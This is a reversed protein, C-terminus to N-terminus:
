KLCDMISTRCVPADGMAAQKKWAEYAYEFTEPYVSGRKLPRTVSARLAAETVAMHPALPQVQWPKAGAARGLVEVHYVGTAATAPDHIEVWRTLKGQPPLAWLSGDLPGTWDACASASVFAALLPFYRAPFM